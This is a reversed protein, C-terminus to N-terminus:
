KRLLSESLQQWGKQITSTPRSGTQLSPRCKCSLQLKYRHAVIAAHVTPENLDLLASEVGIKSPEIYAGRSHCTFLLDVQRNITAQRRVADTKELDAYFENVGFPTVPEYTDYRDWWKSAQDYSITFGCGTPVDDDTINADLFYYAFTKEAAFKKAYIRIDALERLTNQARMTLQTSYLIDYGLKASQFIIYSGFRGAKSQGIYSDLWGQIEDVTLLTREKARPKQLLGIFDYFDIKEVNPSDMAYNSKVKGGSDAVDLSLKTLLVGKGQRLKGNVAIIM